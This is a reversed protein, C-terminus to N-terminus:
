ITKEEGLEELFMDLNSQVPTSEINFLKKLQKDVESDPVCSINRNEEILSDSLGNISKSRIIIKDMYVEAFCCSAISKVSSPIVFTKKNFKPPIRILTKANYDYLVGDIDKLHKNDPSVTIKRLMNCDYLFDSEIDFNVLNKGIYLTRLAQCDDFVSYGLTELSEPLVIDELQEDGYFVEDAISILGENFCVDQLSHCEEFASKGIEKINPSLYATKIDTAYFAQKGIKILSNPFNVEELVDCGRFIGESLEELGENISVTTLNNCYAFAEKGVYTLTSPFKIEELLFCDEFACNGIRELGEPLVAHYFQKGYFANDKIVKVPLGRIEEPIILTDSNSALSLGKIAIYEVKNYKEKVCELICGNIKYEFPKNRM